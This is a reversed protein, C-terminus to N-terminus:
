QPPRYPTAFFGRVAEGTTQRCGLLRGGPGLTMQLSPRAGPHNPDYLHVRRTAEEEQYGIAVVQHNRSPNTAGGLRVITIPAPTGAELSSKLASWEREGTMQLVGRSWFMWWPTRDPTVQWTLCRAILAGGSMSEVQRRVLESFLDDGSIPPRDSPPVPAGTFYRDLAAWSMGGCLGFTGWFDLGAAADTLHRVPRPLRIGVLEAMLGGRVLEAVVESGEFRNTFAFGHTPPDFGSM